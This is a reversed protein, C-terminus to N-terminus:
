SVTNAGNQTYVLASEKGGQLIRQTVLWQNLQRVGTGTPREEVHGTIVFEDNFSNLM